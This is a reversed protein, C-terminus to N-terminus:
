AGCSATRAAYDGDPCRRGPGTSSSRQVGRRRGRGRRDGVFAPISGSQDEQESGSKRSRRQLKTVRVLRGLFPSMWLTRRAGLSCEEKRRARLGFILEARTQESRFQAPCGTGPEACSETQPETTVSM